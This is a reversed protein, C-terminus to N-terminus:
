CIAPTGLRVRAAPAGALMHPLRFVLRSSVLTYTIAAVYSIQSVRELL